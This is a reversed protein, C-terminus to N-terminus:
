FGLYIFARSGLDGFLFLSVVMANVLGLEIVLDCSKGPTQTLVRRILGASDLAFFAAGLGLFLWSDLRFFVPELLRNATHTSLPLAATVISSIGKLDATIFPLWAISILTFCILVQLVTHVRPLRGLGSARVLRARVGASTVSGVYLAAHFLGWLIFSVAVGHWIGSLVFVLVISAYYKWTRQRRGGLPIYVYDRFWTMLSVHWRRWFDQVSRALYPDYFNQTLRVGFTRAVGIAINTYGYFDFYIQFSFLFLAFWISLRSAQEHHQMVEGVVGAIKDAIILKCFYGWLATKVGVYIDHLRPSPLAHLQPTLGAWREVPGAVLRPFFSLYLACDLPNRTAKVQRRFVDVVYSVAQFTYFSIGVPLAVGAVSLLGSTSATSQEVNPLLQRYKFFILPLLIAGIIGALSGRTTRRSVELAGFYTLGVM